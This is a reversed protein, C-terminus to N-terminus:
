RLPRWNGILYGLRDVPTSGMPMPSTGECRWDTALGVTLSSPIFNSSPNAACFEKFARARRADMTETRRCASGSAGGFCVLVKGDMCRWFTAEAARVEPPPDAEEGPGPNDRHAACFAHLNRPSAEAMGSLGVLALALAAGWCLYEFRM